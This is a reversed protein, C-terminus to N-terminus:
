ILAWFERIADSYYTLMKDLCLVGKKTTKKGCKALSMISLIYYVSLSWDGINRVRLGSM